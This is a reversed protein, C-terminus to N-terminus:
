GVQMGLRQDYTSTRAYLAVLKSITMLSDGTPTSSILRAQRTNAGQIAGYRRM